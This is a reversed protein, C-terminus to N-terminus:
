DDDTTEGQPTAAGMALLEDRDLTFGSDVWADEMVKLHRSIAPGPSLGRDLLDQGRLPFVPKKWRLAFALQREYAERHKDDRSIALKLRDRIGGAPGAYLWKAIETDSLTADPLTAQAWDVLRDRVINPVKLRRSVDTVRELQPPLMAMLRLLSDPDWDGRHEAEILRPVADIGWKESEPLIASLVGTQRMWLLARGPDPAALLKSLEQWVREASLGALGDKLRACAKLGDADPRHRGYWAFFRFFRLIRLYDERIRREADGVFRVTRSELDPLGGLPDFVTGDAEMYLANITLDRRRADAEWDTGYRVTAHRGDTDIDQRLTTVEFGTGDIVATVTGHEIGTPVTKIGEDKLRLIVDRPVLTTAIDIDAVDQGLLANRVAGGAVRAEADGANLLALLRQLHPDQLWRLNRDDAM